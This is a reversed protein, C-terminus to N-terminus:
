TSRVRLDGGPRAGVCGRLLRRALASRDSGNVVPGPQPPDDRRKAGHEEARQEAPAGHADHEPAPLRRFQMAPLAHPPRAAEFARDTEIVADDHVLM